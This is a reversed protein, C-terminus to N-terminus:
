GIQKAEALLRARLVFALAVGPLLIASGVWYAAQPSINQFVWGAWIPGFVLALSVASQYLGLYRGREQPQAQKSALAQMVPESIGRGVSFPTFLLTVVVPNLFFPILVFGILFIVVGLPAM